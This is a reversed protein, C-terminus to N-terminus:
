DKSILESNLVKVSGKAPIFGAEIYASKIRKQAALIALGKQLADFAAKGDPHTKSVVYHRSDDFTLAIGPVALLELSHLKYHNNVAPMFPLLTFDAWKKDVARIQQLWEDDKYLKKLKLSKLTQWDAHWRPTSISTFQSFDDLSDIAFVKRNEPHAFVGALYEGKNFVAASIYAHEAIKEADAYWYTDFSLLQKGRELINTNRLTVKGVQYNFTKDFGGLKLAQLALVMDVVDRRMRYGSFSTIQHVDRGALFAQFDVYVDDRIYMDVTNSSNAANAAFGFLMSALVCFCIKFRSLKLM